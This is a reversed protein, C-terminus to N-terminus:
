SPNERALVLVQEVLTRAYGENNAGNAFLLRFYMPALIGELVQDLTPAVEGRDRARVLMAEIEDRRAFMGAAPGGDAGIESRITILARLAALGVTGSTEPVSRLAFAELDGRLSGTDRVPNLTAWRLALMDVIVGDLGGWRRYITAQHVGAREAVAAVSLESWKAEGLLDVVARHVAARAQASRGGPRRRVGDGSTM